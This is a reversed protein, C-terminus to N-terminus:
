HYILKCNLKRECKANQKMNSKIRKTVRSFNETRNEVETEYYKRVLLSCSGVEELRNILKIEIFYKRVFKNICDDQFILVNLSILKVFEYTFEIIGDLIEIQLISKIKRYSAFTTM